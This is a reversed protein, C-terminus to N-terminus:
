TWSCSAPSPFARAIRSIAGATCAIWSSWATAWSSWAAPRRGGAFAQEILLRDDPDDEAVLITVRHRPESMPNGGTATRGAPELPLLVTFTSGRGPVGTATITGGCREVIRRCIALGM